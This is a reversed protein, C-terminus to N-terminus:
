SAARMRAKGGSPFIEQDFWVVQRRSRIQEGQWYLV